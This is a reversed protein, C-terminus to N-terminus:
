DCKGRVFVSHHFLVLVYPRLGMVDDPTSAGESMEEVAFARRDAFIASTVLVSMSGKLTSMGCDSTSRNFRFSSSM